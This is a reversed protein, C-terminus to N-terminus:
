FAEYSHMFTGTSPRFYGREIERALGLIGSEVEELFPVLQDGLTDVDVYEVNSRVRGATRRLSAGGGFELEVLLSEILKLCSIVSRPLDPSQLLFTLVRVGEMSARHSRLYAEYASVSRLLKVWEAYAGPSAFGGLRRHWVTLVRATILARELRQGLILFRYGEGRPMSGELAGHVAQCSSKVMQLVEYPRNPALSALDIRGLDLHLDNLSEWVEVSLWERTTRANERARGIISPLSGPYGRDAILLEGVQEGSEAAPVEDELFLTELLEAWLEEPPRDTGAELVTHYTVDLLRASDEAREIYRGIWFLDEAHRSLM